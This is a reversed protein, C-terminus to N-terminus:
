IIVTVLIPRKVLFALSDKPAISGTSLLLTAMFTNFKSIGFHPSHYNLSQERNSFHFEVHDNFTVPLDLFNILSYSYKAM